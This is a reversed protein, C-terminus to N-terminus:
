TNMDFDFKIEGAPRRGEDDPFTCEGGLCGEIGTAGNDLLELTM